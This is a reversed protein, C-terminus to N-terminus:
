LILKLQPTSVYLFQANKKIKPINVIKKVLELDVLKNLLRYYTSKSRSFYRDLELVTIPENLIIFEFISYGPFLSKILDKKNSEIVNKL